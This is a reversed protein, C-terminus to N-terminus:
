LKAAYSTYIHKVGVVGLLLTRNAKFFMRNIKSGQPEALEFNNNDHARLILKKVSRSGTIGNYLYNLKIVGGTKPHFNEVELRVADYGGQEVIVVGDAVVEDITVTQDKFIGGNPTITVHRMSEIENNENLELFYQTVDEDIDSTITALKLTKAQATIALSILAVVIINM